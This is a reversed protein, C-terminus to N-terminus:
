GNVNGQGKLYGYAFDALEKTFTKKNKLIAWENDQWHLLKGVAMFNYFYCLSAASKKVDINPLEAKFNELFQIFGQQAQQEMAQWEDGVLDPHERSFLYAPRMIHHLAQMQDWSKEAILILAHYLTKAPPSDAAQAWWQQCRQFYLEMLISGMAHKNNFRQYVTAVSVGAGRAVDAVSIQSFRKQSLLNESVQLILDRKAKSRIQEAPKARM